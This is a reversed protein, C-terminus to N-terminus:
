LQLFLTEWNVAPSSNTSAAKATNQLMFGGGELLSRPFSVILFAPSFVVRMGFSHFSGCHFRGLAHCPFQASNKYSCSSTEMNVHFHARSYLLSESTSVICLSRQVLMEQNKSCWNLLDESLSYHVANSPSKRRLEPQKQLSARTWTRKGKLNRSAPTSGYSTQWWLLLDSEPGRCAWPSPHLFCKESSVSKM